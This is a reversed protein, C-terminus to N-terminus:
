RRSSGRMMMAIEKKLQKQINKGKRKGNHMREVTFKYMNEEIKRWKTIAVIFNRNDGDIKLMDHFVRIPDFLFIVYKANDASKFKHVRPYVMDLLINSTNISVGRAHRWDNAKFSKRDAKNYVYPAFLKKFALLMEESGNESHVDFIDDIEVAEGDEDDTVCHHNKALVEEPLIAVFPVFQKGAEITIVKIDVNQPLSKDKNCLVNIKKQLFDEVQQTTISFPLNPRTAPTLGSRTRINQNGGNNQNGAM